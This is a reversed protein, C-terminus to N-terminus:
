QKWELLVRNQLLIEIIIIRSMDAIKERVHQFTSKDQKM